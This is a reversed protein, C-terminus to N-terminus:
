VRAGDDSPDDDEGTGPRLRYVLTGFGGIVALFGVTM